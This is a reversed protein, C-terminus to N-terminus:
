AVLATPNAGHLCCDFLANSIFITRQYAACSVTNNNVSMRGFMKPLSYIIRVSAALLYSIELRVDVNFHKCQISM